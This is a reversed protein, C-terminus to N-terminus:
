VKMTDLANYTTQRGTVWQHFKQVRMDLIAHARGEFAARPPRVHKRALDLAAGEALWGNIGVTRQYVKGSHSRMRFTVVWDDQTPNTITPGSLCGCVM